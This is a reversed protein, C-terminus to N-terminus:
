YIFPCHHSCYYCQISCQSFLLLYSTVCKELFYFSIRQLTELSSGASVQKQTLLRCFGDLVVIFVGLKEHMQLFRRESNSLHAPSEWESQRVCGPTLFMSANQILTWIPHKRAASVEFCSTLLAVMTYDFYM